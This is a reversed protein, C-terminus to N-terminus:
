SPSTLRRPRKWFLRYMPSSSEDDGVEYRIATVLEWGDDSRQRLVDEVDRAALDQDSEHDFM